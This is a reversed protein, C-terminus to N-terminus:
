LEDQADKQGKLSFHGDKRQPGVPGLKSLIPADRGLSWSKKLTLFWIQIM